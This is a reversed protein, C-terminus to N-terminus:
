ITKKEILFFPIYPISSGKRRLFNLNKYDGVEM